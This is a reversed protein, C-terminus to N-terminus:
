FIEVCERFSGVCERSSGVCGRFLDRARRCRQPGRKRKEAYGPINVIAVVGFADKGVFGQAAM